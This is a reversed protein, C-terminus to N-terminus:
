TRGGPLNLWLWFLFSTWKDDLSEKKDHLFSLFGWSAYKM